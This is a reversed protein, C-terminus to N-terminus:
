PSPQKETATRIRLEGPGLLHTVPEGDVTVVARCFASRHRGAPAKVGAAVDFVAELTDKTIECPKSAVDNPLGVLELRAPGTFDRRKEVVIKWVESKGQIVLLKPFTVQLYPEAVEIKVRKSGVLVPGNGVTAQATVIARWTGTKAGSNATLPLAAKNQGEAITVAASASVGPPTFLLGLAIPATYGPKRTAKVKLEGTGGQVLPAKPEVPEVTFPVAETVAVAMRDAAYSWLDRNNRGRVLSTRQFLRGEINSTGATHRGILEVLAGTPPADSAASLLVPVEAADDDLPPVDATVGPPLGKIQLDVRGGFDKRRIAVMLGLHNGQPVSATVDEYQQRQPLDLTLQPQVPAIEVRYVFDPGGRARHDRVALVCEGDAPVAFRLYSDPSGSDDNEAITGGDARRIALLSDLPSRLSRAHVQVDFVQGKKAAFKFCDADGRAGIIGHVAAPASFATAQAPEQNPESEM